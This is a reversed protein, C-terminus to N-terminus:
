KIRSTITEGRWFGGQKSTPIPEEQICHTASHLVTTNKNKDPLLQGFM